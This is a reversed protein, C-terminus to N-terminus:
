HKPERIPDLVPIHVDPAYKSRIILLTGLALCVMFLFVTAAVWTRTQVRDLRDIIGVHNDTRTPHPVAHAGTAHAEALKRVDRAETAHWANTAELKAISEALSDLRDALATTVTQLAQLEAQRHQAFAQLIQERLATMETPLKTILAGDIAGAIRALDQNTRNQQEILREVATALRIQREAEAVRENV